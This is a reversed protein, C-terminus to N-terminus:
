ISSVDNLTDITDVTDKKLTVILGIPDIQSNAFDVKLNHLLAIQAVISLGLGSGTNDDVGAVISQANDHYRFFRESLQSSIAEPVGGGTDTVSIIDSQISLKVVGNQPTYRTANDLLNRLLVVLLAHNGILTLPTDSIDRELRLRKKRALPMVQTMAEDSVTAWNIPVIDSAYISDSLRANHDLRALMLLQDLLHSARTVGYHLQENHHRLELLRSDEINSLQNLLLAMVESHMHLGALPSRLEHSADATFRRERALTQQVREFLLNLAETLPILETSTAAPLPKVDDAQRRAVQEGLRNLPRLSRRVAYMIWLIFLGIGLTFPVVQAMIVGVMIERRELINQGVAVQLNSSPVSLYYILWDKCQEETNNWIYRSTNNFGTYGLRHEFCHSQDLARNPTLNQLNDLSSVSRAQENGLSDWIMFGFYSDDTEIETETETETQTDDSSQDAVANEKVTDTYPLSRQQLIAIHSAMKKLQDDAVENVEHIISVISLLATLIFLTPLGWLLQRLLQQQISSHTKSANSPKPNM